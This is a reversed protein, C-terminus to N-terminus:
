LQYRVRGAQVHANISDRIKDGVREIKPLVTKGDIKPLIFKEEAYGNGSLLSCLVLISLFLKKM